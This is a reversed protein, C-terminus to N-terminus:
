GTRKIAASAEFVRGRRVRRVVFEIDDCKITQGPAPLLGLQREMWVALTEKPTAAPGGVKASVDGMSIGGGFLWTGGSLAHAHRPLRDFEDELEGVMEEILDELTILGLCRRQADRVIAMHEHQDIFAKLLDSASSDPEVFHVPRVIGKLSPDRPNTRMFYILEKFNIYGIVSDRDDGECVPFRTHADMHAAIVAQNLTQATSLMSVQEIPIMVHRASARSLKTARNIIREQHPGIHKSLRALTALSTIEELTAPVRKRTPRSEFPRNLLHLVRIVPTFVRIALSLPRAIWVAVARNYHVGLTKPLIETYQLMAFTFLISFLWIWQDGFLEDFQSGAVSAGITHAATNLILIAAIPREINTKFGRWISGVRPHRVSLDAVQSPTLSLLAAEMLSCLSSILLAVLVSAIFITM